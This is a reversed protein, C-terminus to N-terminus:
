IIQHCEGGLDADRQHAGGRSGGFSDKFIGGFIDGM